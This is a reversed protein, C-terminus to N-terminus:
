PIGLLDTLCQSRASALWIRNPRVVAYIVVFVTRRCFLVSELQASKRNWVMEELPKEDILLSEHQWWLQESDVQCRILKCTCTRM